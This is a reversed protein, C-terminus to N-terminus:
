TARTAPLRRCCVSAAYHCTFYIGMAIALREPRVSKGPLAIILGAPLALLLGIITFLPV